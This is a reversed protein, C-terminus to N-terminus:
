LSKLLSGVEMAPPRITSFAVALCLGKGQPALMLFWALVDSESNHAQLSFPKQACTITLATCARIEMFVDQM